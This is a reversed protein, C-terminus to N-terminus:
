LKKGKAIQTETPDALYSHLKTENILDKTCFATSIAKASESHEPSALESALSGQKQTNVAQLNQASSITDIDSRAISLKDEETPM